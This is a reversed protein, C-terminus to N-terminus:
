QCIGQHLSIVLSVQAKHCEFVYLLNDSTSGCCVWGEGCYVGVITYCLGMFCDPHYRRLLRNIKTVFMRIDHRSPLGDQLCSQVVRLQIRLFRSCCWICQWLCIHYQLIQGIMCPRTRWQIVNFLYFVKHVKYLWRLLDVAKLSRVFDPM